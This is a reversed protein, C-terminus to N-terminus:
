CGPSLLQGLRGSVRYAVLGIWERVGINLEDMHGAFDWKVRDLSHGSRFDVPYPVINRWGAHCFVAVSRPMHFASTVLVWPGTEHGEVLKATLAANEATNRSKGEFIMRNPAIGSQTFLMRAVDASSISHQTLSLTDGTFIVKSQPYQRALALGLLFREGADNVNAMRSFDSQTEDEGGGLIIIGAPNTIKPNAAFRTELPRLFVDGLPLLAIGGYLVLGLGNFWLAGRKRGRMLALFGLFFVILPLNEPRAFFWFAKSAIFFLNDM